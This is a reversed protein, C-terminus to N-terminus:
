ARMRSSRSKLPMPMFSIPSTRPTQERVQSRWHAHTRAQASLSSSPQRSAAAERQEQLSTQRSHTHVAGPFGAELHGVTRVAVTAEAFVEVGAGIKPLLLALAVQAPR